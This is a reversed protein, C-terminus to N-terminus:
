RNITQKAEETIELVNTYALEPDISLGIHSLDFSIRAPLSRNGCDKMLRIFEDKAQVCEDQCITNEGIFELSTRYDKQIFQEAILIGDKREEGTVFRKACNLFLPYLEPSQQIYEKMKQNRAVSKLADAFQEESKKM